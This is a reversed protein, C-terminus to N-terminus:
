GDNVMMLWLCEIMLGRNIKTFDHQIRTLIELHNFGGLCRHSAAHLATSGDGNLQDVKAQRISIERPSEIAINSSIYIIYLYGM